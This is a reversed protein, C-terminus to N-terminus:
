PASLLRACLRRSFGEPLEIIEIAGVLLIIKQLDDYIAQCGHCQNLHFEILARLEKTVDNELYDALESCVERCPIAITGAQKAVSGDGM